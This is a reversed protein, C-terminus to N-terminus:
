IISSYNCNRSIFSPKLKKSAKKTEIANLTATDLHDQHIDTILILDAAALGAYAKAGGYPDVYITKKDWTLVLAGHFVPQITLMGKSTKLEDAAPRQAFSTSITVYLFLLTIIHKM